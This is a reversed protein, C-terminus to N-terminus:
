RPIYDLTVKRSVIGVATGHDFAPDIRGQREHRVILDISCRTIASTTNSQAFTVIPDIAVSESGDADDDEGLTGSSYSKTGSLFTCESTYSVAVGAPAGTPAWSVVVTEGDTVQQHNAPTVISFAPPMAVRSDPADQAEVRNFSVVYDVFPQYDFRAIYDPTYISDNDAMSRCLGNICARLYDGGDLRYSTPLTRGDNLNARVVATRPDSSEVTLNITMRGTPVAGGEPGSTSSSKPDGCATLLTVLTVPVITRHCFLSKQM